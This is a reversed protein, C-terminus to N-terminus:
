RRRKPFREKVALIQELMTTAEAPPEKGDAMAAFGKWLADLQDGIAPYNSARV